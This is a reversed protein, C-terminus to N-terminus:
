LKLEQPCALFGAITMEVKYDCANHGVTRVAHEARPYNAPCSESRPVPFHDVSLHPPVVGVLHDVEMAQPVTAELAM